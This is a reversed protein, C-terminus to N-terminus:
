RADKENNLNGPKQKEVLLMVFRVAVIVNQLFIVYFRNSRAQPAVNCFKSAPDLKSFHQYIDVDLIPFTAPARAIELDIRIINQLTGPSRHLELIIRECNTNSTRDWECLKPQVTSPM